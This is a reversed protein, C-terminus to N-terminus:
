LEFASRRPAVAAEPKAAVIQATKKVPSARVPPAEIVLVSENEIKKEKKAFLDVFSKKADIGPSPTSELTAAEATKQTSNRKKKVGPAAVKKEKPIKVVKEDKSKDDCVRIVEVRKQIAECTHEM